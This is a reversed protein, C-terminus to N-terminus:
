SSYFYIILHFGGVGPGLFIAICSLQLEGVVQTIDTPKM